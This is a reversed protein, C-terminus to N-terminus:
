NRKRKKGKGAQNSKEWRKQKEAREKQIERSSKLGLAASRGKSEFKAKREAYDDRARDVGVKPATIKNHKFRRGQSGAYNGGFGNDDVKNARKWADFRGSRLSAPILQGNEGRIYKKGDDQHKVFKGRKKDWRTIQKSHFDGGEDGVQFSAKSASDNFSYGREQLAEKSEYHSIYNENDRFSTPTFHPDSSDDSKNKNETVHSRAVEAAEMEARKAEQKQHLRHQVPAIQQRRRAMMQAADGAGNKKFEFVTEKVRRNALRALMDNKQKELEVEKTDTAVVLPHALDWKGTNLLEEKAKHIGTKSAAERSRLYMKEGRVAVQQLAQLDDSDRQLLTQLRESCAELGSRPLSGLVLKETYDPATTAKANATVATEISRALFVELDVLYPLDQERVLSYAWGSHGARATRGVRHIFVRASTPLNYNVVNALLPIDVGRAAVDTVVMVSTKGARFLYLQERRAAQDLSGYLFSVAYGEQNLLHYVYEVHHKTPVFVITADPTPLDTNAMAEKERKQKNTGDYAARQKLYAGQEASMLPLKIVSQLVYLLAADRESDKVSFFAMQLQESIKQEVDLRVLMPNRLGAKAFEVLNPPLTASFLLTQRTEPLSALIETLQDSFGMEFLRDAEDFVVYECNRLQLGMEVKLHLFRGPTAVVIDPNEMMWGFQDEMSDGGVLLVSKLETKRGFDKVARLTQFALERNPALVIARVGGPPNLSRNKLKELMPLVFAATKGSGTRAMGVVDNGDLIPPMSKRQIPTPTKFGKRQINTLLLKSLGMTTFSQGTRKVTKNAAALVEPEEEDDSELSPMKSHDESNGELKSGSAESGQHLTQNEDDSSEIVDPIDEDSNDPDSDQVLLKTIDNPDKM